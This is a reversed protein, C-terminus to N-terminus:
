KGATAMLLRAFREPEAVHPFHHEVPWVLIEAQPLQEAVFPREEADVSKAHLAVYPSGGHAPLDFAIARQGEPLADLVPYWMRRDFTLGHLLVFAPGPASPDGHDRGALGAWRVQVSDANPIASTTM